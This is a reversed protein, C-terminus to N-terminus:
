GKVMYFAALAVAKDLDNTVVCTYAIMRPEKKEAGFTCRAIASFHGSM